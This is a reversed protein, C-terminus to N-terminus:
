THKPPFPEEAAGYEHDEALGYVARSIANLAQVTREMDYPKLCDEPTHMDAPWAGNLTQDGQFCINAADVGVEHFRFHDSDGFHRPIIFLADRDAETYGGEEWFAREFARSVRNHVPASPSGLRYGDEGRGGLTDCSLAIHEAGQDLTILDINFAGLVREREEKTMEMVYYGSGFEGKEEAAFAIFRIETDPFPELGHFKEALTLLAAVGSGNDKAGVTGSVTDYHASVILIQPDSQSAKKVAILNTMGETWGRNRIIPAPANMRQQYLTGSKETYGMGAFADILWDRARLEGPTYSQREGVQETLATLRALWEEGSLRPVEALAASLCLLAMLVAALPLRLSPGIGKLLRRITM